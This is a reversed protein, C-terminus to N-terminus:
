ISCCFRLFKLYRGSFPCGNRQPANYRFRKRSARRFKIRGPIHIVKHTVAYLAPNQQPICRVTM